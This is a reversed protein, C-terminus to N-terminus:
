LLQTKWTNKAITDAIFNITTVIILKLSHLIHEIFLQNMQILPIHIM